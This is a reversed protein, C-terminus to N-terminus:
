DNFWFDMRSDLLTQADAIQAELEHKMSEIAEIQSAFQQQWALPPLILPFVRLASLSM